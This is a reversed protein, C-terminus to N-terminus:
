RQRDCACIAVIEEQETLEVALVRVDVGLVVTDFPVKLYDEIMTDTINEPSRRYYKALGTVAALYSRQTNWALNKLDMVRIMKQRLQTM